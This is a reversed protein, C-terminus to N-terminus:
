VQEPELRCLAYSIGGLKRRTPTRHEDQPSRSVARSARAFTLPRSGAALKSTRPDAARRASRTLGRSKRQRFHAYSIRRRAGVCTRETTRKRFQVLSRSKSQRFHATSSPSVGILCRRGAGPSM